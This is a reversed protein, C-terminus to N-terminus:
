SHRVWRRRSCAREWVPDETFAFEAYGWILQPLPSARSSAPEDLMRPSQGVAMALLSAGVPNRTRVCVGHESYILTPAPRGAIPGACDIDATGSGGSERALGSGCQIKLSRLHQMGVGILQPSARSSAPEDLMGTSQGVAMALLSAGVTNSPRVCVSHESYIVTLAPRGAIPGSWDVDAAVAKALM